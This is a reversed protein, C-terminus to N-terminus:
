ACTEEGKKCGFRGNTFQPCDGANSVNCYENCRVTYGTQKNTWREDLTCNRATRIDDMATLIEGISKTVHEDVVKDDIWPVEIRVIPPLGSKQAVSRNWDKILAQLIMRKCNPFRYRRYMNLQWRYSNNNWDKREVLYQIDYYYKLTKYDTLIGRSWEYQDPTGTLIVDRGNVVLPIELYNDHELTYREGEGKEGYKGLEILKQKQTEVMLHFSTGFTAWIGKFPDAYYDNLREWAAIRPPKQLETVSFVNDRKERQQMINLLIPLEMCRSQCSHICYDYPRNQKDDVCLFGVQPMTIGEKRNQLIAKKQGM